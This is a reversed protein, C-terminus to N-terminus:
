VSENPFFEQKLVSGVRKLFRESLVSEIVLGLGNVYNLDFRELTVGVGM